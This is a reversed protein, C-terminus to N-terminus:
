GVIRVACIGRQFTAKPPKKAPRVPPNRISALAAKRRAYRPEGLEVSSIKSRDNGRTVTSKKM